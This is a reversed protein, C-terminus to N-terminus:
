QKLHDRQTPDLQRRIDDFNLRDQDVLHKLSPYVLRQFSLHLYIPLCILTAVLLLVLLSQPTLSEWLNMYLVSTPATNPLLLSLPCFCLFSGSYCFITHPSYHRAFLFLCMFHCSCICIFCVIQTNAQDLTRGSPSSASTIMYMPM